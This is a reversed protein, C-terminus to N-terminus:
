NPFLHLRPVFPLVRSEVAAIHDAEGAIHLHERGVEDGLIWHGDDVNM